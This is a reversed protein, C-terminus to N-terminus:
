LEIIRQQNKVLFLTHTLDDIMNVLKLESRSRRIGLILFSTLLNNNEINVIMYADEVLAFHVSVPM